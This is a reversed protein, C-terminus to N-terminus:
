YIKGGLINVAKEMGARIINSTCIFTHITGNYNYWVIDDPHRLEPDTICSNQYFLVNFYLKGFYQINKEEERCHVICMVGNFFYQSCEVTEGNLVFYSLIGEKHQEISEGCDCYKAGKEILLLVIDKHNEGCAYSLADNFNTAGLEILWEVIELHGYYSADLLAKNFDLGTSREDESEEDTEDGWEYGREECKRYIGDNRTNSDSLAEVEEVSVKEIEESAKSEEDSETIYSHDDDSTDGYYLEDYSLKDYKKITLTFHNEVSPELLEASRTIFENWEQQKEKARQLIFEAVHMHKSGCAATFCEQYDFIEMPEFFKILNLHGCDAAEVIYELKLNAGRQIFDMVM